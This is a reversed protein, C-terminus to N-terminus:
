EDFSTKRFVPNSSIDFCERYIRDIAESHTHGDFKPARDLERIGKAMSWYPDINYHYTAQGYKTDVGIIFMGPYMTGDNHLLSKWARSKLSTLLLSITLKARHDYLENFTHYRDSIYGASFEEPISRIVPNIEQHIFIDVRNQSDLINNEEM